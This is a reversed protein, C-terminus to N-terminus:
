PLLPGLGPAPGPPARRRAALRRPVPHRGPSAPRTATTTRRRPPPAKWWGSTCTTPCAWAWPARWCSITSTTPTKWPSGEPRAAPDVTVGAEGLDALLRDLAAKLTGDVPCRPDDLWAAVRFDELDQHRSPPLELRWAPAEEREPAALVELALELDGVNLAMPGAVSLDRRALAGPPGPM